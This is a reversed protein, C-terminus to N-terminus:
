PLSAFYNDLRGTDISARAQQDLKSSRICVHRPYASNQMYTAPDLISM